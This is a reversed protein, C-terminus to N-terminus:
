NLNLEASSVIQARGIFRGIIMLGADHAEAGAHSACADQVVIPRIPRHTFEFLALATALVCSETAIGCIVIDTWKDEDLSKGLPGVTSTYSSKDYTVARRATAELDPHISIDDSSRFRTWGILTEWQSGPPNTFRSMFVPQDKELWRKALGEIVPIVHRSNSNVFGNQADVILLPTDHKM